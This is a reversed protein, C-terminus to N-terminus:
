LSRRYQIEEVLRSMPLLQNDEIELNWWNGVPSRVCRATKITADATLWGLLQVTRESVLRCYVYFESRLPLIRKQSDIRRYLNTRSTPMRTKVQIGMGDTTLDVGGDGRQKLEADISLRCGARRNLFSSTGIEGSLGTLIPNKILGRGWQDHREDYRRYKDRDSAVRVAYEYDADSIHETIPAPAITLGRGEILM